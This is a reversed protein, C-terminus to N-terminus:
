LHEYDPTYAKVIGLISVLESPLLSLVGFTNLSTLDVGLLQETLEGFM